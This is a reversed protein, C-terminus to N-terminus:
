PQACPKLDFTGADRNVEVFTGPSRVNRLRVIGENLHDVALQAAFTARTQRKLSVPDLGAPFSPNQDGM